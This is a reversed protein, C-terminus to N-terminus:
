TMSLYSAAVLRLRTLGITPQDEFSLDSTLLPPCYKVRSKM